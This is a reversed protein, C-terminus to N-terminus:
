IAAVYVMHRYRLRCIAECLLASTDIPLPPCCHGKQMLYLEILCSRIELTMRSIPLFPPFAAAPFPPLFCMADSVGSCRFSSARFPACARHALTLFFGLGDALVYPLSRRIIVTHSFIHDVNGLRFRRATKSRRHCTHPRARLDDDLIACPGDRDKM